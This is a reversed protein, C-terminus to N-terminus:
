AIASTEKVESKDLKVEPISSFFLAEQNQYRASLQAVVIETMGRDTDLAERKIAKHLWRPLYLTTRQINDSM